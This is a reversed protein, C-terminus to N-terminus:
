ETLVQLLVLSPTRKLLAKHSTPDSVNARAAVASSSPLGRALSSNRELGEFSKAWNSQCNIQGKQSKSQPSDRTTRSTHALGDSERM